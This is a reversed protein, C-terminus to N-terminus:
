ILNVVSREKKNESAMSEAIFRKLLFTKYVKRGDDFSVIGIVLKM